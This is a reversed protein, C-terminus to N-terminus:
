MSITPVAARCAASPLQQQEDQDQGTLIIQLAALQAASRVNCDASVGAGLLRRWFTENAALRPLLLDARHAARDLVEILPRAALQRCWDVSAGCVLRAIYPDRRALQWAFSVAAAVIRSREEPLKDNVAFLDGHRDDAFVQQWYFGDQEHLSFLLFPAAALRQVQLDTLATIVAQCHAPLLRRLAEGGAGCMAKLLAYNLSHVDALDKSTPVSYDM